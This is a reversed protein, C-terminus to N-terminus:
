LLRELRGKRKVLNKYDWQILRAKKLWRQLDKANVESSTNYFVSADKFKEGRVNLKDEEFGAGSWFM